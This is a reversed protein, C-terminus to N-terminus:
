KFHKRFTNQMAVTITSCYLIEPRAFVQICRNQRLCYSRLLDTFVKKFLGEAPHFFNSDFTVCVSMLVYLFTFYSRLILNSLFSFIITCILPLPFYSSIIKSLDHFSICCLYPSFSLFPLM